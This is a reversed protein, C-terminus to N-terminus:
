VSDPLPPSAIVETPDSRNHHVTSVRDLVKKSAHTFTQPFDSLLTATFKSCTFTVALCNGDSGLTQLCLFQANGFAWGLPCEQGFWFGGLPEAIEFQRRNSNVRCTAREITPFGNWGSRRTPLEPLNCSKRNRQDGSLETRLFM